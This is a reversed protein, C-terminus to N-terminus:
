INRQQQSTRRNNQRGMNCPRDWTEQNSRRLRHQWPKGFAPCKSSHNSRPGGCYRCGEATRDDADPPQQKDDNRAKKTPRAESLTSTTCTQRKRNPLRPRWSPSRRPRRRAGATPNESCQRGCRRYAPGPYSHARLGQSISCTLILSTNFSVWQLQYKKPKASHKQIIGGNYDFSSPFQIGLFRLDTAQCHICIKRWNFNIKGMSRGYFPTHNANLRHIPERTACKMKRELNVIFYGVEDNPACQQRCWGRTRFIFCLFYSLAEIKFEEFVNKLDSFNCTNTYTSLTYLNSGAVSLYTSNFYRPCLISNSNM